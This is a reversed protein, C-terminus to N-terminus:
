DYDIVRASTSAFYQSCLTRPLTTVVDNMNEQSAILVTGGIVQWFTYTHECNKRMRTM